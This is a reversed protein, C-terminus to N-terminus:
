TRKQRKMGRAFRLARQNRAGSALEGPQAAPHNKTGIANQHFGYWAIFSIQCPLSGSGATGANSARTDGNNGQHHAINRSRMITPMNVLLGWTFLAASM